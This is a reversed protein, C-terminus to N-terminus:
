KYCNQSNLNIVGKTCTFTNLCLSHIHSDGQDSGFTLQMASIGCGPTQGNDLVEAMGRGQGAQWRAGRRGAFSNVTAEENPRNGIEKQGM